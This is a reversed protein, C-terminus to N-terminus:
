QTPSAWRTGYAAAPNFTDPQTADRQAAATDLKRRRRHGVRGGVSNRINTMTVGKGIAMM